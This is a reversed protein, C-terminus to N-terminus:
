LFVATMAPEVYEDTITGMMPVVGLEMAKDLGGGRRVVVWGYRLLDKLLNSDKEGFHFISSKETVQLFQTKSVCLPVPSIPADGVTASFSHDTM